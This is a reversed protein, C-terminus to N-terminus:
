YTCKRPISGPTAAQVIRQSRCTQRSRRRKNQSGHSHKGAYASSNWTLLVSFVQSHVPGSASMLSSVLQGAGTARLLYKSKPSTYRPCFYPFPRASIHRRNSQNAAAHVCSLSIRGAVGGFGAKIVNISTNRSPLSSPLNSIFLWRQLSAQHCMIPAMQEEEWQPASRALALTWDM